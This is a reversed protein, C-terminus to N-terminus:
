AAAKVLLKAFAHAFVAPFQPGLSVRCTRSLIDLSRPCTDESYDIERRAWNYPNLRENHTRRTMVPMWNTYVHRGTDILREVGRRKSAFAKADTARDFLITLGAGDEPDNHPSVRFASARSLVDRMIKRRKKMRRIWPDLRPLQAYLIAGTVESVRMNVGAFYPENSDLDHNRTYSGVDHYILARSFIRDDNTVVAGGEGSNLNKYQNFSFAGVDGISGVRRGKYSLGVGQCADEIVLLKHKRAIATIADMDCVLNLMHVPLIAKTDPTIKREIDQPDMMLTEDIEVLVPVAGAALVAAATAVWTYAPVLVEDGPGIGAGVLAAILASTGSNVTLSHRVGIKSSLQAEFRTTFGKEGGRYRLLQGKMLVQNVAIIEAVGVRPM